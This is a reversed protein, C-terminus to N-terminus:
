RDVRKVGNERDLGQREAGNIKRKTSTSGNTEGNEREHQEKIYKPLEEGERWVFKAGQHSEPLRKQGEKGTYNERM